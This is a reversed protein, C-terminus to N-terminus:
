HTRAAARSAHLFRARGTTDAGLFEAARVAAGSPDTLVFVDGDHQRLEYRGAEGPVGALAAVTLAENQESVTVWLRGDDATVEYRTARTQYHGVYRWPEAPRVDASPSALKPVPAIGALDRLLPELLNDVLPRPEGGNTLIAVAVGETPVTQLVTAVGPADGGHEVVGSRKALMWGLGQGSRGGISAPHDIQRARMAHVSAPSLLRSGDPALGDSLHMRAFAILARASMALQNGAAPNSPPLVAWVQMPQLEAGPSTRVHGIAARFALAEDACFAIEEIGLPAALYRRLATPYSTKRLVEVLRGLVGYGASCYSYMEGPPTQQPAVAVLDEVFRQLADEGATTPAWIDGEFGGTHALLHRVTIHASARDDITRFAPLYARVPVDLEVLGDDVLQMVLTATWVKTISQIMFVSDATLEVGTRRNVVGATGEVVQGDVLVAVSVGPVDHAAVMSPLDENLRRRVDEVRDV